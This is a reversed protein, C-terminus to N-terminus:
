LKSEIKFFFNNNKIFLFLYMYAINFNLEKHLNCSVCRNNNNQAQHMPQSPSPSPLNQQDTLSHNRYTTRRLSNHYPPYRPPLDHEHQIPLPPGRHIINTPVAQQPRRM